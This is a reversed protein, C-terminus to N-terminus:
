KKRWSPPGSEKDADVGRSGWFVWLVLTLLILAFGFMIDEVPAFFVRGDGFIPPAANEPTSSGIIAAGDYRVTGTGTLVGNSLLQAPLIIAYALWFIRSRLLRTRIVFLDLVTVVTVALVAFQTYSM